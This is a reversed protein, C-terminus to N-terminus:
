NLRRGEMGGSVTIAQGTIHGAVLTSSLFSVANAIDEPAAVKRLAVTSLAREIAAEDATFSRAMPTVVWGPSVTNVRGLRSVQALENKLTLTLGHILASKTAAYDGHGAEGFVGATSGIMVISPDDIGNAVVQKIFQRCCLFVSKLNTDMTSQWQQASMEHVPVHEEPWVGANAVLMQLDGFRDAVQQFADRVDTESTLDARVAMAHESGLEAVLTNASAENRFYHVIVNAGEARFQRAIAQGIGGSAGSIFVTRNQFGLDM